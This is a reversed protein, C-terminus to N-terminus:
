KSFWGGDCKPGRLNTLCDTSLATDLAIWVFVAVAAVAALTLLIERRSPRLERWGRLSRRVFIARYAFDAV